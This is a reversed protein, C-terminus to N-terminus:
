LGGCYRESSRSYARRAKPCRSTCQAVFPESPRHRLVSLHTQAGIASAAPEGSNVARVPLRYRAARSGPRGGPRGASARRTSAKLRSQEHGRGVGGRKPANDPAGERQSQKGGASSSLCLWSRIRDQLPRESRFNVPKQFGIPGRWRCGTLHKEDARRAYDFPPATECGVHRRHRHDVAAEAARVDLIHVAPEVLDDSGISRAGNDKLGALVVYVRSLRHGSDDGIEVGEHRTLCLHEAPCRDIEDRQLRRLQPKRLKRKLALDVTRYSRAGARTGIYM